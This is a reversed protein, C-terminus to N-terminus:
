EDEERDDMEMRKVQQALKANEGGECVTKLDGFINGESWCDM